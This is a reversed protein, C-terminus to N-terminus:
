RGDLDTTVGNRSGKVMVAAGPLPEGSADNVVGTVTITQAWASVGICLALVTLIIRAFHGKM